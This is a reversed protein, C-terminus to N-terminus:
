KIFSYGIAFSYWLKNHYIWDNAYGSAYDKGLVFGANLRNVQFILGTAWTWGPAIGSKLDATGTNTTTNENVNIFSLGLVFPITMYAPNRKSIRKRFGGYAGITVDTTMQFKQDRIKPRIKFPLTLQGTTIQYNQRRFFSTSYLTQKEIKEFESKSICLIKGNNGALGVHVPPNAILPATYSRAPKMTQRGHSYQPYRIIIYDTGSINVEEWDLEILFGNNTFFITDPFIEYRNNVERFDARGKLEIYIKKEYDQDQAFSISSLLFLTVTILIFKM